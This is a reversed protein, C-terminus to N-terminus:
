AHRTWVMRSRDAGCSHRKRYGFDDRGAYRTFWNGRERVPNFAFRFRGQADTTTTRLRRLVGHRIRKLRITAYAECRPYGGILRGSFVARKADGLIHRNVDITIRPARYHASAPGAIFVSAAIMGAAAAGAAVKRSM